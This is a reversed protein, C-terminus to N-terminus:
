KEFYICCSEVKLNKVIELGESKEMQKDWFEVQYGKITPPQRRLYSLKMKKGKGNYLNRFCFPLGAISIYMLRYTLAILVGPVCDNRDSWNTCFIKPHFNTATTMYSM